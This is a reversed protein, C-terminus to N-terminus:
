VSASQITKHPDRIQTELSQVDTPVISGALPGTAAPIVYVVVLLLNYTQKRTSALSPPHRLHPCLDSEETTLAKSHHRRRGAFLCAPPSPRSLGTGMRREECKRAIGIRKDFWDAMEGFLVAREDPHFSTVKTELRSLLNANCDM